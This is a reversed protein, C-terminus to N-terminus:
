ANKGLFEQIEEVTTEQELLLKETEDQGKKELIIRANKKIEQRWKWIGAALTVIATIAEAGAKVAGAVEVFTGVDFSKVHLERDPSIPSSEWGTHEILTEGLGHADEADIQMNLKMRKKGLLNNSGFILIIFIISGCNHLSM